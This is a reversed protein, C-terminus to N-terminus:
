GGKLQHYVIVRAPLTFTTHTDNGTKAAHYNLIIDANILYTYGYLTDGYGNGTRILTGGHKFNGKEKQISTETRQTTDPQKGPNPFLFQAPISDTRFTVTFSAKDKSFPKGTDILFEDSTRDVANRCSAKYGLGSSQNDFQGQLWSMIENPEGDAGNFNILTNGDAANIHSNLSDYLKRYFNNSDNPDAISICYPERHTSATAKKLREQYSCSFLLMSLLVFAATKQMLLTKDLLFLDSVRVKKHLGDASQRVM